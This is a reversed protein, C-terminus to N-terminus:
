WVIQICSPAIMYQHGQYFVRIFYCSDQGDFVDKYWDLPTWRNDIRCNPDECLDKWSGLLNAYIKMVFVEPTM